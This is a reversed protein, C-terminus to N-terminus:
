FSGSKYRESPGLTTQLPKLKVEPTHASPFPKSVVPPNGTTGGEPTAPPPSPQNQTRCSLDLSFLHLWLGIGALAHCRSVTGPEVEGEPCGARCGLTGAEATDVASWHMVGPCLGKKWEGRLLVALEVAWLGLRM